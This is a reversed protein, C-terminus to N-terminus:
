NLDGSPPLPKMSSPSSNPEEYYPETPIMPSDLDSPVAIATIITGEGKKLGELIAPPLFASLKSIDQPSLPVGPRPHIGLSALTSADLTGLPQTDEYSKGCDCGGHSHIFMDLSAQFNEMNKSVEQNAFSFDPIFTYACYSALSESSQSSSNLTAVLKSLLSLCQLIAVTLMKTSSQMLRRTNDDGKDDSLSM